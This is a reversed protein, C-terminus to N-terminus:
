SRWCVNKGSKEKTLSMSFLYHLTSIERLNIKSEGMGRKFLGFNKKQKM